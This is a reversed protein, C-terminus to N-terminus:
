KVKKTPLDHLLALDQPLASDDQILDPLTPDDVVEANMKLHDQSHTVTLHPSSKYSEPLSEWDWGEVM